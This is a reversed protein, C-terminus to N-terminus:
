SIFPMKLLFLRLFKLTNLINLLYIQQTFILICRRSTLQATRGSYHGNSELSNVIYMVATPVAHDSSPKGVDSRGPLMIGMEFVNVTNATCLKAQM